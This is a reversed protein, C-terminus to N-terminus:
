RLRPLPRSCSRPDTQLGLKVGPNPRPLKVADHSVPHNRYDRRQTSTLGAAVRNRSSLPQRHSRVLSRASIRCHRFCDVRVSGMFWQAGTMDNGRRAHLAPPCDGRAANAASAGRGRPVPPTDSAANAASLGAALLRQESPPLSLSLPLAAYYDAAAASSPSVDKRAGRLSRRVGAPGVTLPQPQPM